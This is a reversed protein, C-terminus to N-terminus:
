IRRIPFFSFLSQEPPLRRGSPDVLSTARPCAFLPRTSAKVLFVRPVSRPPASGALSPSMSSIPPSLRWFSLAPGTWSPALDHLFQSPALSFYVRWEVKLLFLWRSFLSPRRSLLFTGNRLLPSLMVLLARYVM